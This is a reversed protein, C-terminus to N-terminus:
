FKPMLADILASKQDPTIGGGLGMVASNVATPLAPRMLGNPTLAGRAAAEAHILGPNPVARMAPGGGPIMNAFQRIAAYGSGSNNHVGPPVTTYGAVRGVLGLQQLEDQSFLLRATRPNSRTFARIRTMFQGPTAGTFIRSLVEGRVAQWAQSNEGLARRMKVLAINSRDKFAGSKTFFRDAAEKAELELRRTDGERVTKMIQLLKADQEFERGHRAREAVARRFLDPGDDTGSKVYGAARRGMFDDYARKLLGGIRAERPVTSNSLDSMLSRAQELRDLSVASVRSDGVLGQIDKLIARAEKGAQSQPNTKGVISRLSGLLDHVGERNIRTGAARAASYADNVRQRSEDMARRMATQASHFAEGPEQTANGTVRRALVNPAEELQQRQTVSKFERLARQPGSEMPNLTAGKTAADEAAMIRPDRTADGRTLQVNLTRAEAIRRAEEPNRSTRMIFDIQAVDDASLDDPNVGSRRLADRGEPSLRGAEAFAGRRALARFTSFAAHTVGSFFGATAASIGAKGFDMERSSGMAGSGVDKALETAGVVGGSRVATGLISRGIGVAGQGVAGLVADITDAVDQGSLGKRNLVFKKGDPRIIILSGNQFRTRTGPRKAKIIEAFHKPDKELIRALGLYANGPGHDTFGYEPYPKGTDPDIEPAYKGSGTVFDATNKGLESAAKGAASLADFSIGGGAIGTAPLVNKPGANNNNDTSSAAGKSTRTIWRGNVYYAKNGKDDVATRSPERWQGDVYVRVSGKGDEAFKPEM